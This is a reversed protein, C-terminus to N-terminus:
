HVLKPPQVFLQQHGPQANIGYGNTYSVFTFNERGCPQASFSLIVIIGKHEWQTITPHLVKVETMQM